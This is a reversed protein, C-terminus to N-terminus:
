SLIMVFILNIHTLDERETYYNLQTFLSVQNASFFILFLLLLLSSLLLLLLLITHHYSAMNSVVIFFKFAYKLVHSYFFTITM